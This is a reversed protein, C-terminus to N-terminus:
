QLVGAPRTRRGDSRLQGPTRAAEAHPRLQRGRPVLVFLFPIYMILYCIILSLSLSVCETKANVNKVKTQMFQLPTAELDIQDAHHQNVLAFRVHPSRRVDGATPTLEGLM